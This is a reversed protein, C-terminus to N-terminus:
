VLQAMVRTTKEFAAPDLKVRLNTTDVGVYRGIMSAKVNSIFSDIPRRLVFVFHIHERSVIQTQIKDFPLHGPFLKFSNISQGDDTDRLAKLLAGPNSRVFTVLTPDVDNVFTKNAIDGLLKIEKM